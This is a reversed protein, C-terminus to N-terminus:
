KKYRSLCLKIKEQREKDVKPTSKLSSINNTMPVSTNLIEAIKEAVKENDIVISREFSITAM